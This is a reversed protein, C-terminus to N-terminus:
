VAREGTRSAPCPEHGNRDWRWAGGPGDSHARADIFGVFEEDCYVAVNGLENGWFRCGPHDAQAARIADILEDGLCPYALGHNTDIM